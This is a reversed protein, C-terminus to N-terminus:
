ATFKLDGMFWARTENPHEHRIWQTNQRRIELEKFLHVSHRFKFRMGTSPDYGPFFSYFDEDVSIGRRYDENFKVVRFKSWFDENKRNSRVRPLWDLLSNVAESSIESYNLFRFGFRKVNKRGLMWLIFNVINTLSIFSFYRNMSLWSFPKITWDWNDWPREPRRDTISSFWVTEMQGQYERKLIDWTEENVPQWGKEATYLKDRLISYKIGLFVLEDEVPGCKPTVKDKKLGLSRFMGFDGLTEWKYELELNYRNWMTGDPPTSRVPIDLPEDSFLLGDDAYMIKDWSVKTFAKDIAMIALIPSLSWGQPIGSKRYGAIKPDWHIEEDTEMIEVETGNGGLVQWRNWKEFDVKPVSTILHYLYLVFENPFGRECLIDTIVRPPIKNFCAKLDFEFVKKKEVRIKHLIKDWCHWVNKENRFGYQYDGITPEILTYLMFSIMGLSVRSDRDPVGLPRVGTAEDWGKGTPKPVYTRKFGYDIVLAHNNRLVKKIISHVESLTMEIYWHPFNKVFYYMMVCRSRQFLVLWLALFKKMNGDDRYKMMRNYQKHLYKNARNTNTYPSNGTSSFSPLHWRRKLNVPAEKKPLSGWVVDDKPIGGRRNRTELNRTHIKELWGQLRTVWLYRENKM